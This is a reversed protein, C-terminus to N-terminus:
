EPSPSPRQKLRPGSEPPASSAAPKAPAAAPKAEGPPGKISFGLSRVIPAPLKARGLARRIEGRGAKTKARPHHVTAGQGAIKIAEIQAPTPPLSITIPQM